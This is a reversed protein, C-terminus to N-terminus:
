NTTSGCWLHHVLEALFSAARTLASPLELLLTGMGTCSEAEADDEPNNGGVPNLTQAYCSVDEKL